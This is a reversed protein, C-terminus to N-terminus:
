TAPRRADLAAAFDGAQSDFHALGAAGPREPAAAVDLAGARGGALDAAVLAALAELEQGDVRHGADAHLDHSSWLLVVAGPGSGLAELSRRLDEGCACGGGLQSRICLAHVAVPLVDHVEHVGTSRVLARRHRFELDLEQLALPPEPWGDRRRRARVVDHIRLVPLDHRAAFHELEPPRALEGQEDLVGCFFVGAGGGATRVLDQLAEPVRPRGLTGDPHVVVPTVHGPQRFDQPRLSQDLLGLVTRTRDAASIGTTRPELRDVPVRLNSPGSPSRPQPPIGLADLREGPLGVYLIGRCRLTLFNTIAPTAREAAVGVMGLRRFEDIVLALGGASLREVATATPDDRDSGADTM